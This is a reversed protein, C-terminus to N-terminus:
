PTELAGCTRTMGRLADLKRRLGSVKDAWAQQLPEQGKVNTGTRARISAEIEHQSVIITLDLLEHLSLGLTFESPTPATM